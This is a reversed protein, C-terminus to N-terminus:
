FISEVLAMTWVKLIEIERMAAPLMAVNDRKSTGSNFDWATDRDRGDMRQSKLRSEWIKGWAAKIELRPKAYKAM